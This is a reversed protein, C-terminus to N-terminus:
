GLAAFEYPQSPLQAALVEPALMNFLLIITTPRDLEDVFQKIFHLTSVMYARDPSVIVHGADEREEGVRSWEWGYARCVQEGWLYGMTLIFLAYGDEDAQAAASRQGDVHAGIAEVIALPAAAAEAHLTELGEAILEAMEQTEDPTLPFETWAM